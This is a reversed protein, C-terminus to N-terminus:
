IITNYTGTAENFLWYERIRTALAARIRSIFVLRSIKKRYTMTIQHKRYIEMDELINECIEMTKM